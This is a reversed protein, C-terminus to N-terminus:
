PLSFPLIQNKNQQQKKMQFNPQCNKLRVCPSQAWALILNEFLEAILASKSTCNSDANKLEMLTPPLTWEPMAAEPDWGWNGSVSEEILSSSFAFYPQWTGSCGWLQTLGSGFKMEEELDKNHPTGPLSAHNFSSTYVLLMYRWNPWRLDSPWVLQWNFAALM